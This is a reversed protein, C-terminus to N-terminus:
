ILAAAEVVVTETAVGVELKVAATTMTAIHVQVDKQSTSKFGGKTVTLTYTGVPLQSLYFQGARGLRGANLDTLRIM